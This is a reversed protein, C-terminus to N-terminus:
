EFFYDLRGLYFFSKGLQQNLTFTDKEVTKSQSHIIKPVCIQNCYFHFYFLIHFNTTDSSFLYFHFFVFYKIFVSKRKSTTRNKVSVLAFPWNFYKNIRKKDKDKNYYSLFNGRKKSIHFQSKLKKRISHRVLGNRFLM